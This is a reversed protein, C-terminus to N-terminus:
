HFIFLHLPFSLPLSLLHLLHLSHLPLHIGPTCREWCPPFHLASASLVLLFRVPKSIFFWVCFCGHLISPVATFIISPCFSDRRHWRCRWRWRWFDLNSGYFSCTQANNALIFLWIDRDNITPLNHRGKEGEVKRTITMSMQGRQRTSMKRHTSTARFEDHSRWSFTRKTPRPYYRFCSQKPYEFGLMEQTFHRNM